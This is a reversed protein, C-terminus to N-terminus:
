TMKGNGKINIVMLGFIYEKEMNKVMMTLEKIFWNEMIMNNDMVMDLITKGTDEINFGLIIKIFEL